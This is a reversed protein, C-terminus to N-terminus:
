FTATRVELGPSSHVQFTLPDLTFWQFYLEVAIEINNPIPLAVFAQGTDDVARIAILSNPLMALHSPAGFFDFPPCAAGLALFLGSLEGLKAGALAITYASNPAVTQGGNVGIIPFFGNSAKAYLTGTALYTLGLLPAPTPNCPTPSAFSPQAPLGGAGVHYVTDGDTVYVEGPLGGADVALGQLLPALAYPSSALASYTGFSGLTGDTKVNTVM